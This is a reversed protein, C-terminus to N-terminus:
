LYKKGIRESSTKAAAAAAAAAAKIVYLSSGLLFLYLSLFFPPSIHKNHVSINKKLFFHKEFIDRNIM